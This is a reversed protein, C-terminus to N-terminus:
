GRADDARAARAAPGPSRHLRDRLAAEDARALASTAHHFASAVVGAALLLVIAGALLSIGPVGAERLLM